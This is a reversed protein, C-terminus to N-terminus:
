ALSDTEEKELFDLIQKLDAARQKPEKHVAMYIVDWQPYQQAYRREVARMIQLIESDDAQEIRRLLKGINGRRKGLIVIKKKESM